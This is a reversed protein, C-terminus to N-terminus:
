RVFWPCLPTCCENRPERTKECEETRRKGWSVKAWRGREASRRRADERLSRQGTPRCMRAVGWLGRCAAPSRAAVACLGHRDNPHAKVGEGHRGVRLLPGGDEGDGAGGTGARRTGAREAAARASGRGGCGGGAGRSGKPAHGQRHHRVQMQLSPRQLQIFHDVGFQFCVTPACPKTPPWARTLTPTVHPGPRGAKWGVGDRAGGRRGGRGRRSGM